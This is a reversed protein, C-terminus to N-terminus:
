QQAVSATQLKLVVSILSYRRTGLFFCHKLTKFYSHRLVRKCHPCICWCLLIRCCFWSGFVSTSHFSQHDFPFTVSFRTCCCCCWYCCYCCCSFSSWWCGIPLTPILCSSHQHLPGTNVACALSGPERDLPNQSIMNQDRPQVVPTRWARQVWEKHFQLNIFCANWIYLTTIIKM